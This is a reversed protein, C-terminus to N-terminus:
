GNRVVFEEVGSVFTLGRVSDTTILSSSPNQCEPKRFSARVLLKVTVAINM